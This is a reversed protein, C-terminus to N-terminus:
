IINLKNFVKQMQNQLEGIKGEAIKLREKLKQNEIITNEYKTLIEKNVTQQSEHFEQLGKIALVGFRDYEVWKTKDSDNRTHVIKGFDGGLKKLQSASVGFTNRKKEGKKNWVYDIIKLKLLNELVNESQHIDKKFRMDSGSNGAGASFDCYQTFTNTGATNLAAMVGAKDVAGVGLSAKLHALSARRFYGDSPNTIWVSGITPNEIGLDSNIYTVDIYGNDNTRVIKNVLNNRGASVALGGATNANAVSFNSPNYLYENTPDNGGWLWTPQGGQGSWNWNKNCSASTPIYNAPNFNGTHYITKWPTFNGANIISRFFLTDTSYGGALQFGVEVNKAVLMALYPYPQGPGNSPVNDFGYIGSNIFSNCDNVARGGYQVLDNVGKGGVTNANGGNAPLSTPIQSVMAIANEAFTLRGDNWIKLYKACGDNYMYTANAYTGFFGSTTDQTIKIFKEIGSGGGNLANQYNPISGVEAPTYAPKVSSKAWAYVDSAVRANTLRADSNQIFASKLVAGGGALLFYDDNYNEKLFGTAKVINPATIYGDLSISVAGVSEARPRFELASNPKTAIDWLTTGNNTLNFYSWSNETNNINIYSGNNLQNIKLMGTHEHDSRSVTSASGSGGYGPFTSPPAIWTALGSSSWGLIQGTTGGIPIHNVSPHKYSDQWSGDGALYKNLSNNGASPGPVLGNTNLGFVSLNLKSKFNALSTKRIYNDTGVYIHTPTIGDESPNTAAFSNGVIDGLNNTIVLNYPKTNLPNENWYSLVKKIFSFDEKSLKGDVTASALPVFNASIEIWATGNWRYTIDTDNVNVAWGEKPNSPLNIKSAVQPQWILGTTYSGFLSDIQEKTYKNNWNLKETSTAFLGFYVEEPRTTGDDLKASPRTFKYQKLEM